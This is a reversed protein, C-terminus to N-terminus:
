LRLMLGVIVSGYQLNGSEFVQNEKNPSAVLTSPSFDSNLDISWIFKTYASWYDTLAYQLGGGFAFNIGNVTEMTNTSAPTPPLGTETAAIKLDDAKIKFTGVSVEAFPNIRQSPVGIFRATGFYELVHVSGGEISATSMLGIASKAPIESIGFSGYKLGGAVELWPFISVGVGGSFPWTTNWLSKFQSPTSPIALGGEIWLTVRHPRRIYVDDQAFAATAAGLVVVSLLVIGIIRKM